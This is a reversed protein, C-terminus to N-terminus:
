TNALVEAFGGIARVVFRPDLMTAIAELYLANLFGKHPNGYNAQSLLFYIVDGLTCLPRTTPRYQCQPRRCYTALTIGLISRSSKPMVRFDFCGLISRSSKPM